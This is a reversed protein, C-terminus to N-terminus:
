RAAAERRGARGRRGWASRATRPPRRRARRGSRRRGAPAARPASGASRPARASPAPPRQRGRPGAGAGRGDPAGRRGRTHRLAAPALQPEDGGRGGEGVLPRRPGQHRGALEAGQARQGVLHRAQRRRGEGGSQPRGTTSPPTAAAPGAAARGSPAQEDGPHGAVAVVRQLAAEVLRLQQRAPKRPAGAEPRHEAAAGRAGRRAGSRARGRRRARGIDTIGERQPLFALLTTLLELSDHDNVVYVGCTFRQVM